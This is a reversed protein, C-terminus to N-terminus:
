QLCHEGRRLYAPKVYAPLDTLIPWETLLAAGSGAGVKYM